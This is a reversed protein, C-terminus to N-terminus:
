GKSNSQARRIANQEAYYAATQQKTMKNKPGKKGDCVRILAILRNLHWKQCEMSINNAFMRSYLSESTVIEKSASTSSNDKPFIAATMSDDMYAQIQAFHESKLNFFVNDNKIPGIVMCRIYDLNQERTKNKTNLYSKHWKAEWKSISILSHELVLTCTPVSILRNQKPLFIEDEIVTLELM